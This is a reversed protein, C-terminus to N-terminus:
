CKRIKSGAGVISEALTVGELECGEDVISRRITCDVMTVGDLVVSEELISREISCGRGVYSKHGYEMNAQIYSERDGIDFWADEFPFGDVNERELVWEVFHGPADRSGGLMRQEGEQCMLFESLLPLAREPLVYVGTSILASQPFEPKEEFTLIKGGSLAAVGYRGRVKQPDKMDHLAILINGSFRNMFDSIDFEFLNDGAVVLLDEKVNEKEIFHALAGITGLKGEEDRTDEICLHIDKGGPCESKWKRFAGEFKRNITVAIETGPIRKVLYEILPIGAVPLLSKPRTETLPLLRTAYGGAMIVSRM